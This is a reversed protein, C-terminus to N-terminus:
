PFNLITLFGSPVSILGQPSNRHLGSPGTLWIWEGWRWAPAGPIKLSIKLDTGISFLSYPASLLPFSGCRIMGLLGWGQNRLATSSRGKPLDAAKTGSNETFSRDKSLLSQHYIFIYVYWRLTRGLPLVKVELAPVLAVTRGFAPRGSCILFWPQLKVLSSYTCYNGTTKQM